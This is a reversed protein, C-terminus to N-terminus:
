TRHTHIASTAGYLLNINLQQIRDIDWFYQKSWYVCANWAYHSKSTHRNCERHEARDRHVGRPRHRSTGRPAHSRRPSSSENPIRAHTGYGSLSWPMPSLTVEHRWNSPPLLPAVQLHRLRPLVSRFFFFFQFFNSFWTRRYPKIRNRIM